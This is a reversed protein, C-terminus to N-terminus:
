RRHTRSSGRREEEEMKLIDRPVALRSVPGRYRTGAGKFNYAIALALVLDDFKGALAQEKGDKRVFHMLCDLLYQDLIEIGEADKNYKRIAQALQELIWRRGAEGDGGRTMFGFKGTKEGADKDTAPKEREYVDAGWQRLLLITGSDFNAEPVILCDGYYRALRFCAEALDTIPWRCEAMSCAVVKPRVWARTQDDYFGDRLVVVGHTDLKNRGKREEDEEGRMPDIALVYRYGEMPKEYMVFQADKKDGVVEAVVRDKERQSPQTMIIYQGKSTEHVAAVQAEVLMHKLHKLNFRGPVSARFGHEPTTPFDRDRQDPDGQCDDLAWRWFRIQEPTLKYQMRLDNEVAQEEADVAGRGALIDARERETVPMWSDFGYFWPEFIRIFGNKEEGMQFEEFEAAGQWKEYFAGSGGLVTTEWIVFSLPTFPVGNSIGTLV